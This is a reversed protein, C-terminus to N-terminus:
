EFGSHNGLCAFMKFDSELQNLSTDILEPGSDDLIGRLM